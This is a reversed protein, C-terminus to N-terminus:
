RALQTVQELWGEFAEVYADVDADMAPVAVTPGAGVIAEWVGRNAFYLRQWQRVLKRDMARAAIADAPPEAALHLCCRAMLQQVSWPVGVRELRERLAGVLRTGLQATHEYADETLLRELTVRAATTSLANGFLTGGTAIRRSYSFSPSEADYDLLSALEPRMGYAGCPVGGAISKGVIVADPDLDWRATLGGQGCVLTHTEDYALLTGAARTIERVGDLYGDTPLLLGHNNTMVPEMLLVAVDGPALARELAGLDNMQVIRVREVLDRPLGRQEPVLASGELDVMVDDVHGHYKGDLMVVRERGTAVRALRIVEANAQSASLTLQWQPLGFRRALEAAVVIADEDPLMFQTGMRARGSVAEALPPPAYGTFASMDALNFDVYEHGDVDRFRAGSGGAVFLPPHRYTAVMWAMPTGNPMHRRAKAALERSRPREREFRNRELEYREQLGAPDLAFDAPEVTVAVRGPALSRAPAM